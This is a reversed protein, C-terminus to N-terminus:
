TKTRWPLPSSAFDASVPLAETDNETILSSTSFFASDSLLCLDGTELIQIDLESAPIAPLSPTENMPMVPPSAEAIASILINRWPTGPQITNASYRPTNNMSTVTPSVDSTSLERIFAWDKTTLSSSPIPNGVFFTNTSPKTFINKVSTDSTKQKKLPPQNIPPSLARKKIVEPMMSNNSEFMENIVQKLLTQESPEFRNVVDKFVNLFLQIIEENNLNNLFASIFEFDFDKDLYASILNDFMISLSASNIARQLRALLANAINQKEQINVTKDNFVSTFLKVDIGQPDSFSNESHLHTILQSLASIQVEASIYEKDPSYMALSTIPLAQEQSPGGSAHNNLSQDVPARVIENHSSDSPLLKRWKTMEESRSRSKALRLAVIKKTKVSSIKILNPIFDKSLIHSTRAAIVKKLIKESVSADIDKNIRTVFPDFILNKTKNSISRAALFASFLVAERDDLTQFSNDKNCYENIYSVADNKIKDPVSDQTQKKTDILFKIVIEINIRPMTYIGPNIEHSFLHYHKVKLSFNRDASDDDGLYHHHYLNM